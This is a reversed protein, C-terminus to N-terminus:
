FMKSSLLQRSLFIFLHIGSKNWVDRELLKPQILSNVSGLKQSDSLDRSNVVASETLSLSSLAPVPPLAPPVLSLTDLSKQQASDLSAKNGLVETSGTANLSNALALIEYDSFLSDILLTEM